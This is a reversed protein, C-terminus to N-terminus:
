SPEPESFSSLTQCFTKIESEHSQHFLKIMQDELFFRKELVVGIQSLFQKIQPTPLSKSSDFESDFSILSQTTEAIDPYISDFLGLHRDGFIKAENTLKEYIEFHGASVYDVLNACFSKISLLDDLSPTLSKPLQSFQFFEVMLSQRSKLWQEVLTEVELFVAQKQEESPTM